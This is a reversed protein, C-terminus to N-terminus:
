ALKELDTYRKYVGPHAKRLGIVMNKVSTEQEAGSLAILASLGKPYVERYALASRNKKVAQLVELECMRQRGDHLYEAHDFLAQKELRVMEADETAQQAARVADLRTKAASALHATDPDALLASYHYRADRLLRDSSSHEDRIVPMKSGKWDRQP